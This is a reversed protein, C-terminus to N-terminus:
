IKDNWNFLISRILRWTFPKGRHTYEGEANIITAINRCEQATTDHIASKFKRKFRVDKRKVTKSKGSSGIDLDGLNDFFNDMALDLIEKIVIIEDKNEVLKRVGDILETKYGYPVHGVHDGRGKRFEISSKVKESIVESHLQANSLNQRFSARSTATNNWTIGDNVSHAIAGVNLRLHELQQLAQIMSRSFRSIDYFLICEGRKIRDFIFNLAFQNDMDKASVGNDKFVGIININNRKAFNLCHREQDQLSVENVCNRKSTRCYIYARKQIEPNNRLTEYRNFENLLDHEIFDDECIWTPTKSGVWKILYNRVGDVTRCELINEIEEVVDDPELKLKKRKPMPDDEDMDDDYHMSEGCKVTASTSFPDCYETNVALDDDMHKKSKKTTNNTEDSQSKQYWYERVMDNLNDMNKEPVWKKGISSGIHYQVKYKLQQGDSRHDIIKDFKMSDSKEKNYNSM